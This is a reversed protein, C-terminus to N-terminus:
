SCFNLLINRKVEQRTLYDPPYFFMFTAKFQVFYMVWDKKKEGGEYLKALGQRAVPWDAIAGLVKGARKPESM